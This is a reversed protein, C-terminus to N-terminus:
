LNIFSKANRILTSLLLTKLKNGAFILLFVYEAHVLLFTYSSQKCETYSASWSVFFPRGSAAFGVSMLQHSICSFANRLNCPCDTSNTDWFKILSINERCGLQGTPIAKHPSSIVKSSLITSMHVKFMLRVSNIIWNSTWAVAFSSCLLWVWCLTLLLLFRRWSLYFITFFFKCLVEM